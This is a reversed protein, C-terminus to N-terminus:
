VEKRVGKELLGVTWDGGLGPIEFILSCVSILLFSFVLSPSGALFSVIADGGGGGGRSLNVGV